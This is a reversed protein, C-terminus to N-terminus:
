SSIEMNRVPAELHSRNAISADQTICVVACKEALAGLLFELAKEEEDTSPEIRWGTVDRSIIM